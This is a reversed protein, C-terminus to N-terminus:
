FRLLAGVSGQERLEEAFHRIVRADASQAVALEIEEEAPTGEAVLLVGVRREGLAAMVQDRGAVAQSGTGLGAALRDLLEREEARETEAILERARDLVEEPSAREVDVEIQGVLLDRLYPHLHDKAVPIADDSGGVILHEFPEREYRRFLAECARKVHALTEKEIGRQFRAQSWGGQSHWRHVDDRLSEVEILGDASGRLVRAARRSVLLLGWTGTAVLDLLPEVFPREGVSVQAEVSRPLRYAEFLDAGELSFVVMARASKSAFAQEAFFRRIRELSARLTARQEHSGGGDGSLHHQEVENLLSELQTRRASPLKASAPDLDMYLSVVPHGPFRLAALRRIQAVDIENAQL